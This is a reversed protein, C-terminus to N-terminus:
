GYQPVAVPAGGRAISQQSALGVATWQLSTVVDIDPERDALISEAFIRACHFDGGM